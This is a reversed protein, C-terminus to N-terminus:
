GKETCSKLTATYKYCRLLDTHLEQKPYPVNIHKSGMQLGKAYGRRTHTQM